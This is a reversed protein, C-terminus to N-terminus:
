GAPITPRRRLVRALFVLLVEVCSVVTLWLVITLLFYGLSFGTNDYAFPNDDNRTAQILSEPSNTKWHWPWGGVYYKCPHPDCDPIVRYDRHLASGLFTATIAVLLATLAGAILLQNKV